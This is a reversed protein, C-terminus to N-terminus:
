RVRAFSGYHHRSAKEYAKAADEINDFIGLYNRKCWAVWKRGDQHLSVGKVGCKNNKQALINAHNQSNTAERLNSFRNNLKDVDIHDIQHKPWYGTVYLWALRHALYRKYNISIFWYGKSSKCGATKLAYRANWTPPADHRHKWRLTGTEPDYDLISRVYDATLAEREAM